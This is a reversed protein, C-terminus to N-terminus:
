AGLINVMRHWAKHFWIWALPRRGATIRARGSMGPRIAQDVYDLRAEGVFVNQSDRIEAQPYVMEIEAIVEENPYGDLRARIPMGEQVYAIDEEPVDVELKMADIPVIEFLPQGKDVPAGLADNLDGVLVIGGIPSRITMHAKRYELKEIEGDVREREYNAMQMAAADHDAMASDRQKSYRSSDAHLSALELRIERDDMVAIIQGSKVLDGPEVTTSSLIGDFPAAVFRRHVPEVHCRTRIKHPLPALLTLLTVLLILLRTWRRSQTGDCGWVTRWIKLYRSPQARSTVDIASALHPSMCHMALPAEGQSRINEGGVVLWAGVTRQNVTVLPAGIVTAQNLHQALRGHALTAYQEDKSPPPWITVRERVIAEELAAQIRAATESQHDFDSMGSVAQITVGAGGGRLVGVGVLECQLFLKLENVITFCGAQRSEQAEIQSVLETTASSIRAELDLQRRQVGEHWRTVATALLMMVAINSESGGSASPFVAALGLKRRRPNPLPVCTAYRAVNDLSPVQKCQSTDTHVTQRCLDTLPPAVLEQYAKDLHSALGRTAVNHGIEIISAHEASSIELLLEALARMAVAEDEITELIEQVREHMNKLRHHPRGKTRVVSTIVVNTQNPHNPTSTSM